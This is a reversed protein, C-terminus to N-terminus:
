VLLSDGGATKVPASIPLVCAIEAGNRKKLLEGCDLTPRFTQMRDWELCIMARNTACARTLEQVCPDRV